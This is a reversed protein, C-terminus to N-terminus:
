SAETAGGHKEWIAFRRLLRIPGGPIQDIHRYPGVVFNKDVETMSKAWAAKDLEIDTSPIIRGLIYRNHEDLKESLEAVQVLPPAFRVQMLPARCAWGLAPLGLVLGIMITPDPYGSAWSVERMFGVRRDKLIPKIFDDVLDIM